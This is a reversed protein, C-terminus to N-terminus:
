RAALLAPNHHDNVGLAEHLTATTVLGDGDVEAVRVDGACDIWGVYTVGGSKVARPDAFWCWAGSGVEVRRARYSGVPSLLRAAPRRGFAECCRRESRM